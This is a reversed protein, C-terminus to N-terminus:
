SKDADTLYGLLYDDLDADTANAFVCAAIMQGAFSIMDVMKRANYHKSLKDFLEQDTKGHNTAIAKGFDTLLQEKETFSIAEPDEGADEIFKRFYVTWLLCNSAKSISYAYLNALREGLIIRMDDYVIYWQMYVEFATLSYGLIGKMHTIRTKFRICHREFEAIVLTSATESNLPTIRAM